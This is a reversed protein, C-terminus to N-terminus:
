YLFTHIMYIGSAAGNWIQWQLLWTDGKDGYLLYIYIYKKSMHVQLKMTVFHVSRM